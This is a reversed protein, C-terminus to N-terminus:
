SSSAARRGPMRPTPSRSRTSKPWEYRRRAGDAEGHRLHGHRLRTEGPLRRLRMRLPQRQSHRDYPRTRGGHGSLWASHPRQRPHAASAPALRSCCSTTSARAAGFYKEGLAAANADNELIVPTGLKASIVDRVPFGEFQPLNNSGVILGEDMKIFGPVAVGVGALQEHGFRDRLARISNVIDDIVVDRGEELKTSGAIKALLEGRETIAAARLNTGGLDVGISYRPTETM